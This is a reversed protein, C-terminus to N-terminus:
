RSSSTRSHTAGQKVEFSYGLSISIRRQDHPEFFLSMESEWTKGLSNNMQLSFRIRTNNSSKENKVVNRELRSFPPSLHSGQFLCVASLFLFVNQNERWSSPSIRNSLSEESMLAVITAKEEALGEDTSPLPAILLLMRNCSSIWMSTQPHTSPHLM